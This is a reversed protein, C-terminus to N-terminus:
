KPEPRQNDPSEETTKQEEKSKPTKDKRASQQRPSIINKAESASIASGAPATTSYGTGAVNSSQLSNSTPSVKVNERGAVYDLGMDSEGTLGRQVTMMCWMLDLGVNWGLVIDIVRNMHRLDAYSVSGGTPTEPCKSSAVAFPFIRQPTIGIHCFYSEGLKRVNDPTTEFKDAVFQRAQEFTTIEKPLPFSPAQITLGNGKYRQPIPLYETTVGAMINGNEAHRTLPLVVVTNVTDEHSIVFEMNKAGLGSVTGNVSGEDVFVSQATRIQGTTGKVEKFRNDSEAIMRLLSCLDLINDPTSDQLVLPCDSWTEAKMDLMEYLALIQLELRVNPIFGVTIANLISQASIERIYATTTFGQSDVSTEIQPKIPGDHQQVRIYRTQVHEDIYDPAPFYVQGEELNCGMAPKLDLYDHCFVSIEKKKGQEVESIIETDIAIAETMHGSWRKGDLDHGARTVTNVICRPLGEHIFINLTGDETVRYPIIETLDVNRSVIEVIRGTADNRVASITLSNEEEHSVRRERLRLSKHDGMKKAVVIFSTPPTGLPAGDNDYLNFHGEYHAQIKTSDWHPATYLVRAGLKRLTQRFDRETFFTYETSLEREINQRDDKRAIFEYAWKHPLRFLRTGPFRPPLEELFFGHCEDNDWPRAHESYWLLLDTESMDEPTKGPGTEDQMELLVLEEPPPAVYDRIFIIGGQKLLSSQKELAHKVADESHENETYIKHLTFSNVVADLSNKEFGAPGSMDGVRFTLNPLKYKSSAKRIIKKDPDIGVINIHPSLAAMAYSLAGERYRLGMNALQAGPELLLHSLTFWANRIIEPPIDKLFENRAYYNEVYDGTEKSSLVTKKKKRGAKLAERHGSKLSKTSMGIM